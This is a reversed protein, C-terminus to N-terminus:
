GVNLTAPTWRNSNALLFSKLEVPTANLLSAGNRYECLYGLDRAYEGSTGPKLHGTMDFRWLELLHGNTAGGSTKLVPQPTTNPTPDPLLEPFLEQPM